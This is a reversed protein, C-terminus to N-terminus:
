QNEPHRLAFWRSRLDAWVGMHLWTSVSYEDVGFHTGCTPCKQGSPKTAETGITWPPLPGYEEHCVPCLWNGEQTKFLYFDDAQHKTNPGATKILEYDDRIQSHFSGTKEHFASFIKLGAETFDMEDLIEQCAEESDDSGWDRKKFYCWRLLTNITLSAICSREHAYMRVYFPPEGQHNPLAYGFLGAKSSHYAALRDDPPLHGTGPITISYPVYGGAAFCADLIAFFEEDVVRPKFYFRFDVWNGM